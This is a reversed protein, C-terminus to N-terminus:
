STPSGRTARTWRGFWCPSWPATRRGPWVSRDRGGGPGELGGGVGDEAGPGAALRGFADSRGALPGRGSWARQLGRGAGAPAGARYGGGGGARLRAARRRGRFRGPRIGASRHGPLAHGRPTGGGHHVHLCAPDRRRRGRRGARDEPRCPGGGRPRAPCRAAPQGGHGRGPPHPGAGRQRRDGDRGSGGRGYSAPGPDAGASRPGVKLAGGEDVWAISGGGASVTHIDAMPLRVPLGAVTREVSTGLSEEGVAAAPGGGSAPVSGLVGTLAACDTSTGGMDFSLLADVGLRRGLSRCAVVGGTPGSLLLPAGHRAAEAWPATGGSSQMIEPPRLGRGGCEEALTELYGRTAPTVYADVVCTTLREYERFVPVLESSRVVPVGPLAASLAQALMEEHAPWLFSWLLCVVVAEPALAAVEACVREIEERTLAVEVGEASVRERVTLSRERPVLPEPRHPWLTYLVDRDQRAIALLDRFGETTLTVVRAGRRELLANTAVTMGHVFRRVRPADCGAAALAAEAAQLVGAAPPRTSPVKASYLRDGSVLLADTFTGGVDVGLLATAAPNPAM